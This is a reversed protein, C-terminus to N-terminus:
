KVLEKTMARVRKQLDIPTFPKTLFQSVGADTALKVADITSKATLMLFPIDSNLKRVQKLLELGSMKPMMWDCIVFDVINPDNQFMELARDGDLAREIRRVGMSQLVTAILSIMSQDDDVVLAHLREFHKEDDTM